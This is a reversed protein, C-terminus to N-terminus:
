AKKVVKVFYEPLQVGVGVGKEMYYKTLGKSTIQDELKMTMKPNELGLIGERINGFVMVPDTTAVADKLIKLGSGESEILEVPRSMLTRTNGTNLDTIYFDKNTNKLKSIQQWTERRIYWKAERAIDTQVSYYIDIISEIFKADDSTDIEQQNTVAVDKLIGLPMNTGSGNFVADALRLGLAYEVRKLLFTAYGVYNTALLKNTIVPLAYLQFINVTINEIKAVATDKREEIEGVWGTEPLGAMERPITVGGDDTSIFTIDKLVPNSDQIRELIKRVITTTVIAKGTSSGTKGDGVTMDKFELKSDENFIIENKQGNDKVNLLMAKFQAADDVEEETAKFDAKLGKIVENFENMQKEIEAKFEGNLETKIEEFKLNIENFKVPLNKIEEPTGAELLETKFNALLEAMLLKLQEKDMQEIGGNEKNFVRTVKSGKVAGKPTLSGEHAEFKNIDIYYKGNESYEKYDVINGGVSMEFPLKMEKMLSYLKVAEPNIYNGNDDKSLHFEGMVEFGKETEEGVLKGVPLLEGYHNYLLLLTKGNNGQMSGKKFRYVGKALSDNQMNVLIGTFKGPEGEEEKFKEIECTFNLTEDSFTIRKKIKKKSM